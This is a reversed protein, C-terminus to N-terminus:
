PKNQDEVIGVQQVKGSEKVTARGMTRRGLRLGLGKMGNRCSPEKESVAKTAEKIDTSDQGKDSLEAKGFGRGQEGM